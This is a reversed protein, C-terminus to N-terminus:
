GKQDYHTRRQKEDITRTKGIQKKDYNRAWVVSSRTIFYHSKCAFSFNGISPSLSITRGDYTFSWGGPSLPTVVEKGCGCACKHSVTNYEISIYVVGESINEPIYRVFEYRYQSTKM